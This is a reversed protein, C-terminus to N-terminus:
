LRRGYGYYHGGAALLIGCVLLVIGLVVSGTVLLYIGLIVLILGAINTM